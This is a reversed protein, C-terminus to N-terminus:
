KESVMGRSGEDEEQVFLSSSTASKGAVINGNCRVSFVIISVCLRGTYTPLFSFSNTTLIMNLIENTVVDRAYLAPFAFKKSNLLFM